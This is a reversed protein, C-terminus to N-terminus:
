HISFFDFLGKKGVIYGEEQSIGINMTEVESMKAFNQWM